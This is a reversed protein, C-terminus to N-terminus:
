CLGQFLRIAYGCSTQLKLWRDTAAHSEAEPVNDAMEIAEGLHAM